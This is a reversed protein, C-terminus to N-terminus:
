VIWVAWGAPKGKRVSAKKGVRRLHHVLIKANEKSRFTELLQYKARPM